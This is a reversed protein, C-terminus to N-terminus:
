KSQEHQRLLEDLLIYWQALPLVGEIKVGNLIITPTSQINFQTGQSVLDVVMQKTETAEMCELVGREKAFNRLWEMSLDRQNKFIEDHVNAFDDKLCSALFAASCALPHMSRTMSPNCSSDLPYFFYQINIKGKYRKAISHMMQSLAQCAPCQFDSFISMRLPAASFDKFSTAIRYPSPMKPAGLNQYSRYEKILGSAISTQEKALGQDYYFFIIAAIVNALGLISLVKLSPARYDSKKAFVILLLISLVYYISCFPCLTGLWILSYLLLGICGVANCALVFFISGEVRTSRFIYNSLVFAGVLLGMVSIPVGFINSARSHTAADCNFFSSIDCLVGQGLGTPYLVDFYHSTLYITTAIIASALIVVALHTNVNGNLYISRKDNQNQM